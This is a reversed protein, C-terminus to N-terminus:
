LNKPFTLNSLDECFKIEKLTGKREDGSSSSSSSSTEDSSKSSDDTESDSQKAM